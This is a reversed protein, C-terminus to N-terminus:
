CRYGVEDVAWPENTAAIISIQGTYGAVSNWLEIERFCGVLTSSLSSMTGSDAHSAHDRSTFIAQIQIPLYM